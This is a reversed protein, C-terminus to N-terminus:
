QREFAGADSRGNRPLGRQDWAAANADIGLDLAPSGMPLGMTQTFGGNSAIAQLQPDAFLVGAAVPTDPSLNPHTTPWQLNGGGDQLTRNTNYGNWPDTGTNDALISNTIWVTTVGSWIGGGWSGAGNGSLTVNAISVSGGSITMGGGFTGAQNGQFTCNQFTATYAPLMWIGGGTATTTNARFTSNTVWLDGNQLYIAGAFGLGGTVSNSDFATADIISQSRVEPRTYAFIAGAHDNASNGSFTCRCVLLQAADANQDVGDIYVAGGIGGQGTPGRDAGGGTGFARGNAFTSHLITLQCGLSNVAGGNSGECDTFTCESIQLHRQGTARIAGGGIDPGTSTTRCNIFTVEIVTLRGGWNEVNIGAGSQPTRANRLTIRQLTFETLYAKEFIRVALNGDLTVQNGGDIVVPAVGFPIYLQATLVVTRAGGGTDFVIKGGANIALQLANQVALDSVIGRADVVAAGTMDVPPLPPCTTGPLSTLTAPPTVGPAGGGGGGGGCAPILTAAWLIALVRRKGM